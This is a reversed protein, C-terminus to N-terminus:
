IIAALALIFEKVSFSIAKMPRIIVINPSREVNYVM